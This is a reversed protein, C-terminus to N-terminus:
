NSLRWMCVRFVKGDYYTLWWLRNLHRVLEFTVVEAGSRCASAASLFLCLCIFSQKRSRILSLFFPFPWWPVTDSGSLLMSILILAKALNFLVEDKVGGAWWREREWREKMKIDQISKWSRSYKQCKKKVALRVFKWKMGEKKFFTEENEEGRKVDMRWGKRGAEENCNNRRDERGWRPNKETKGKEQTM